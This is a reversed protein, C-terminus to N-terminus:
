SEKEENEDDSFDLSGGISLAQEINKRKNGGNVTGTGTGTGTSVNGYKNRQLKIELSKKEANEKKQKIKMHHTLLLENQLNKDFPRSLCENLLSTPLLKEYPISYISEITNTDTNTNANKNTYTSSLEVEVEVGVLDLDKSFKSNKINKKFHSLQAKDYLVCLLDGELLGYPASCINVNNARKLSALSTSLSSCSKAPKTSTSTSTSTNTNTNTNIDIKWAKSKKDNNIINSSSNSSCTVPAPAIEVWTGKTM